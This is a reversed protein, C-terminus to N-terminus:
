VYYIFKDQSKKFVVVGAVLAVLASVACGAFKLLSPVRGDIIITRAFSIFQYLPNFKLVTKFFTNNIIDLDYMIPTLYTWVLILIGYIYFM